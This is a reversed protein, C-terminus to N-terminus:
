GDDVDESDDTGIELQGMEDSMLGMSSHRAERVCGVSVMAAPRYGNSTM